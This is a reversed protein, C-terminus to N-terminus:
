LCFGCGLEGEAKRQDAEARVVDRDAAVAEDSGEGTIAESGASLHEGIAEGEAGSKDGGCLDGDADGSGDEGCCTFDGDAHLIGVATLGVSEEEVDPLWLQLEAYGVEGAVGVVADADGEHDGVGAVSGGVRLHSCGGEVADTGGVSRQRGSRDGGSPVDGADEGKGASGAIGALAHEQPHATSIASAAM